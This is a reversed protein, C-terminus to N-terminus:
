IQEFNTANINSYLVHMKILKATAGGSVACAAEVVTTSSVCLQYLPRPQWSICLLELLLVPELLVEPNAVSACGTGPSACVKVFLTCGM